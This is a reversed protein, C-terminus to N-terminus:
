VAEYFVAKGVKVRRIKKDHVLIKLYKSLTPDSVPVHKIIDKYRTKKHSKIVKYIVEATNLHASFHNIDTFNPITIDKTFNSLRSSILKTFNIFNNQLSKLENSIEDLKDVMSPSVDEFETKFWSRTVIDNKLFSIDQSLNVLRESVDFITPVKVPQIKTEVIKDPTELRYIPIPAIQQTDKKLIKTFWTKFGM